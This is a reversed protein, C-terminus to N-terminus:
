CTTSRCSLSKGFVNSCELRTYPFYRLIDIDIKSDEETTMATHNPHIAVAVHLLDSLAAVELAKHCSAVDIGPLLVGAIEIPFGSVTDGNELRHILDVRDPEFQPFDLHAHTDFIRM